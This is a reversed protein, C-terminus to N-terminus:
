NADVLAHQLVGVGVEVALAMSHQRWATVVVMVYYHGEGGAVEAEVAVLVLKQRLKQDGIERGVPAWHLEGASREEESADIVVWMEHLFAKGNKFNPMHLKKIEQM